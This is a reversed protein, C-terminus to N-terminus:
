IRNSSLRQLLSTRNGAHPTLLGVWAAMCAFTHHSLDILRLRRFNFPENLRALRSKRDNKSLREQFGVYDAISGM